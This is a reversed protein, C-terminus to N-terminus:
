MYPRGVLKKVADPWVNEALFTKDLLRVGSNKITERDQHDFDHTSALYWIQTHPKFGAENYLRESNKSQTRFMNIWQDLREKPQGRGIKLQLRHIVYGDNQKTVLTADAGLADRGRKGPQDSMEEKWLRNLVSPVDPVHPLCLPAIMVGDGNLSNASCWSSSSRALLRLCINESKDPFMSYAKLTLLDDLNVGKDKRVYLDVEMFILPNAFGLEKVSAQEVFRIIGRDAMDYFTSDDLTSLRGALVYCRPLAQVWDFPSVPCGAILVSIREHLAVLVHKEVCDNYLYGKSSNSYGYEDVGRRVSEEIHGINGGTNILLSQLSAEDQLETRNFRDKMYKVAEEFSEKDLCFPHIWVPRFKDHNLDVSADYNPFTGIKESSLKCFALARLDASSGCLICHIAGGDLNGLAYLDSVVLKGNSVGGGYVRDLEDIAVLMHLGLEKMTSNIDHFGTNRFRFAHHLKAHIPLGEFVHASPLKATRMDDYVVEVTLLTQNSAVRSASVVEIAKNKRSRERWSDIASFSYM